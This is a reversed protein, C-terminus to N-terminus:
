KKFLINKANTYNPNCDGAVITDCDILKNDSYYLGIQKNYSTIIISIHNDMNFNYATSFAKMIEYALINRAIVTGNGISQRYPFHKILM